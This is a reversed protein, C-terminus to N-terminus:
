LLRFFYNESELNAICVWYCDRIIEIEWLEPYCIFDEIIKAWM